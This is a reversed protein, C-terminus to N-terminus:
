TSTPGPRQPELSGHSPMGTFHGCILAARTMTFRPKLVVADIGALSGVEELVQGREADAIEGDIGIDVLSKVIHIKEVAHRGQKFIFKDPMDPEIFRESRSRRFSSSQLQKYVRIRMRGAQQHM